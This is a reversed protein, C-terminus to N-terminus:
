IIKKLYIEPTMVDIKAGKFDKINRTILIKIGMEIASYYQIADEFDAFDSALALDIIKNNIPSVSVLTKFKALIQRSNHVSYQSHLIYDINAFSLASVHIKIWKIEALSFLKEAHKNFPQRGSLLDICVDTDVSINKM